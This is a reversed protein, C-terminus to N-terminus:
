RFFCSVGAWLTTVRAQDGAGSLLGFIEGAAFEHGITGETVALGPLGARAQALTSGVGVGSATAFGPPARDTALWGAFKGDAFVLQFGDGWDAFTLPGVGCEANASRTPTQGGRLQTMAAIVEAETMGFAFKLGTGRGGPNAPMFGDAELLAQGPAAPAAPADAPAPAPTEPGCAALGLPLALAATLILVPRM